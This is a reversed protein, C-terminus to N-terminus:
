YIHWPLIDSYLILPYPRFKRCRFGLSSACGLFRDGEEGGKFMKLKKGKRKLKPIIYTDEEKLTTNEGGGKQVYRLVLFLM